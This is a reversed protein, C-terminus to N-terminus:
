DQLDFASVLSQFIGNWYTHQYNSKFFMLDAVRHLRLPESSQTAERSSPLFLPVKTHPGAFQLLHLKPKLRIFYAAHELTRLSNSALSILKGHAADIHKKIENWTRPTDASEGLDTLWKKIPGRLARADSLATTSLAFVMPIAELEVSHKRYDRFWEHIILSCM